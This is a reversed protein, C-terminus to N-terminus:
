YIILTELLSVTMDSRVDTLHTVIHFASLSIPMLVCKQKKSAPKAASCRDKEESNNHEGFM